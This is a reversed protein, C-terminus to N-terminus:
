FVLPWPILEKESAVQDEFGNASRQDQWLQWKKRIPRKADVRNM